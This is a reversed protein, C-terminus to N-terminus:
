VGVNTDESNVSREYCSDKRQKYADEQLGSALNRWNQKANESKALADKLTGNYNVADKLQQKASDLDRYLTAVIKSYDQCIRTLREEEQTM